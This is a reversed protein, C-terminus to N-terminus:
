DAFAMTVALIIQLSLLAGLVLWFSLRLWLM